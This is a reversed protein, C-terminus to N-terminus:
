LPVIARGAFLKGGERFVRLPAFLDNQRHRVFWSDINADFASLAGAATVVSAGGLWDKGSATAPAGWTEVMDLMAHQVDYKIMQGVSQCRGVSAGSLTALVTLSLYVRLKRSTSGM